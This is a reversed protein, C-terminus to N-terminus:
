TAQTAEATALDNALGIVKNAVNRPCCGPAGPQGLVEKINAHTMEDTLNAGLYRYADKLFQHPTAESLEILATGITTASYSIQTM